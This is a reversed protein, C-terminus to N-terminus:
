YNLNVIDTWTDKKNKRWGWSEKAFATGHIIFGEALRMQLENMRNTDRNSQLTITMMQAVEQEERDKAIATFDTDQSKYVGLISRVMKRIINNKKPIIGQSAWYQAESMSVGDVEVRDIFQSGYTFKMLRDANIRMSHLGDWSRKARYLVDMERKSGSDKYRKM